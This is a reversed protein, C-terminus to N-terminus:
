SMVCNREASPKKKKQETRRRGGAAQNMSPQEAVVQSPEGGVGKAQMDLKEEISAMMTGLKTEMQAVIDYKHQQLLKAIDTGPPSQDISEQGAAVPSQQQV